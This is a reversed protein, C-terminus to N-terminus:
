EVINMFTSYGCLLTGDDAPTGAKHWTVKAEVWGSTTRRTASPEHGVTQRGDQVSDGDKTETYFPKPDSSEYQPDQSYYRLRM